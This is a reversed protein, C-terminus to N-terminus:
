EEPSNKTDTEQKKDDQKGKYLWIAAITYLGLITATTTTILAIFAPNTLEFSSVSFYIPMKELYESKIHINVMFPGKFGQLWSVATILGLWYITIKSLFALHQKRLAHEEKEHEMRMQAIKINIQELTKFEDSLQQAALVNQSGPDNTIEEIPLQPLETEDERLQQIANTNASLRNRPRSM